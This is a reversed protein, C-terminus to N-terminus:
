SVSWSFCRGGDMCQCYQITHMVLLFLFGYKKDALRNFFFQQHINGFTCSQRASYFDIIGVWIFHYLLRKGIVFREFYQRRFRKTSIWYWEMYSKLRKIDRSIYYDWCSQPVCKRWYSNQRNWNSLIGCVKCVFLAHLNDHM